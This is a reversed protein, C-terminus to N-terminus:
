EDKKPTKPEPTVPDSVPKPLPDVLGLEEAKPRNKPNEMFDLFQGTDNNFYRRAASPMARFAEEARKVQECAEQFTGVESFDGYRPIGSRAPPMVGSQNFRNMAHTVTCEDKFSQKTRGTEPRFSKSHPRAPATATAPTAKKSM